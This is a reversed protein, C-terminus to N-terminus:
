IGTSINLNQQENKIQLVTEHAVCPLLLTHKDCLM